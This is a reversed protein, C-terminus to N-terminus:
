VLYYIVDKQMLWVSQKPLSIRPLKEIRGHRILVDAQQVKGENVLTANTIILSSM